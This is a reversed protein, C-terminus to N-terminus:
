AGRGKYLLDRVLDWGGEEIGPQLGNGRFTARPLRFKRPRKREAVVRRLGDEILERLSTEEAAAIRKAEDLLADAIEVTTKM